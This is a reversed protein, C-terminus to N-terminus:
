DEEDEMNIIDLASLPENSSIHEEERNSRYGLIEELESKSKRISPLEKYASILVRWEKDTKDKQKMLDIIQGIQMDYAELLDKDQDYQLELFEKVAETVRPIKGNITNRANKDLRASGKERKFGAMDAAKESKRDFPLKRLPTEYDYTFFIWRLERDTCQSMHKFSNIEPNLEKIDSGYDVKFLM